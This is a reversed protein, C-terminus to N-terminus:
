SGNMASSNRSSECTPVVRSCTRPSATACRTPAPGRPCGPGNRWPPSGGAFEASALRRGWANLFLHGTDTPGCALAPRGWALYARLATVAYRGVLVEREKDGKGVVRLRRSRLDLDARRAAALEGVRMGSAYATEFLARDRLAIPWEGEISALLAEVQRLELVRPLRTRQRPARIPLVPNRAVLGERQCWRYFSRLATLRHAETVATVGREDVLYALYARLEDRTPVRWDVAHNVAWEMWQSLVTGYARLTHPSSARAGLALLYARAARGSSSETPRVICPAIDVVHARDACPEYRAARGRGSLGRSIVAAIELDPRAGHRRMAPSSIVGPVHALRKGATGALGAGVLFERLAAVRYRRHGRASLPVFPLRGRDSWNRVTDPCVGLLRAAGAVTVMTPRAVPGTRLAVASETPSGAVAGEPLFERLTAIHYRRDGPRSAGTVATNATAAASRRARYARARCTASHYCRDTRGTLELPQGCGLCSTLTAGAGGNLRIFPLRGQDSWSRVTEPNVGPFRAAGPVTVTEPGVVVGADQGEELVAGRQRVPAISPGSPPCKLDVAARLRREEPGPRPGRGIWWARYAALRPAWGPAPEAHDWIGFVWQGRGHVYAAHGVRHVRDGSAAFAALQGPTLVGHVHPEVRSEIPPEWAM